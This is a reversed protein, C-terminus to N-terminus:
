QDNEKAPAATRIADAVALLASATALQAQVGWVAVELELPIDAREATRATESHLHNILTVAHHAPNRRSM